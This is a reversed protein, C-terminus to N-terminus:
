QKGEIEKLRKRLSELLEQLEYTELKRGTNAKVVLADFKKNGLLRNVFETHEKPHGDLWFHCGVCACKVNDFDWRVSQIARSYYHSCNFANVQSGCRICVGKSRVILSVVDDLKKILPKRKIKKM